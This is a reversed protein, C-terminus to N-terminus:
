KKLLVFVKSENQLKNEEEFASPGPTQLVRLFLWHSKRLPFRAAAGPVRFAGKGIRTM